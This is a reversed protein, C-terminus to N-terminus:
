KENHESFMFGLFLSISFVRFVNTILYILNSFELFM